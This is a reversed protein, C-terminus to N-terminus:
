RRKAEAVGAAILREAARALCDNLRDTAAVREGAKARELDLTDSEAWFQMIEYRRFLPVGNAAAVVRMADLYADVQANARLFRSFQLDVLLLDAGIAQLVEIGELMSAVFQDVDLGRAAEVTGTQWLVLTPRHKAAESTLMRAIEGANLGRGGKVVLTIDLGPHRSRLLAELRQPWPSAAGSTGPGLVSASGGVLIRLSGAAIASATAPLAATTEVLEPPAACASEAARVPAALALCLLLLARVAIM